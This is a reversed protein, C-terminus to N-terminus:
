DPKQNATHSYSVGRKKQSLFIILFKAHIIVQASQTKVTDQLELTSFVIYLCFMTINRSLHSSDNMCIHLDPLSFCISTLSAGTFKAIKFPLNSCSNHFIVLAKRRADWPLRFWVTRHTVSHYGKIRRKNGMSHISEPM